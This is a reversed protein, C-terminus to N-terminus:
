QGFLIVGGGGGLSIYGAGGGLLIKGTVPPAGVVPRWVFPYGIGLGLGVGQYM